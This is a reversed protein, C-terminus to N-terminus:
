RRAASAAAHHGGLKLEIALRLGVPGGGVVLVTRCHGSDDWSLLGRSMEPGLPQPEIDPNPNPLGFNTPEGERYAAGASARMAHM